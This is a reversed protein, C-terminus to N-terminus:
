EYRHTIKQYIYRDFFENKSLLCKRLLSILIQGEKLYNM